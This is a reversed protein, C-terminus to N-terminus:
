VKCTDRLFRIRDHVRQVAEFQMTLVDGIAAPLEEYMVDRYAKVAADEGRECESLIAHRTNLGVMDKLELWGRHIAGSATGHRVPEEGIDVLAKDLDAAFEGRQRSYQLLESKLLPDASETAKSAAAFGLEGDRCTEILKNLIDRLENIM